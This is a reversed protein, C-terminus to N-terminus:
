KLSLCFGRSLSLKAFDAGCVGIAAQIAMREGAFEILDGVDWEPAPMLIPITRSMDRALMCVNLNVSPYRRCFGRSLSLQAFDASCVGIADGGLSSFLVLTGECCAASALWTRLGLDAGGEVRSSKVAAFAGSCIFIGLSRIWDRLSCAIAEPFLIDSNARSHRVLSSNRPLAHILVLFAVAQGVIM